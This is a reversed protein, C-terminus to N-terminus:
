FIEPMRQKLTAIVQDVVTLRNLEMSRAFREPYAARVWFGQYVKQPFIFKRARLSGRPRSPNQIRSLGIEPAVDIFFTM